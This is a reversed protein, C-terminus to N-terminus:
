FKREAWAVPGCWNSWIVGVHDICGMAVWPLKLLALFNSLFCVFAFWYINGSFTVIYMPQIAWQLFICAKMFLLCCVHRLLVVYRSSSNSNQGPRWPWFQSFQSLFYLGLLQIIQSWRLSYASNSKYKTWDCIKKIRKKTYPKDKWCIIKFCRSIKSLMLIDCFALYINTKGFIFYWLQLKHGSTWAFLIINDWRCLCMAHKFDNLHLHWLTSFSIVVPENSYKVNNTQKPHRM